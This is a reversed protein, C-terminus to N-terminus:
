LYRALEEMPKRKKERLTADAAHGVCLVLRIRRDAPLGLAAQLGKEDFWGLMCTGLGLETAALCFQLAAIGIDISTYDQKKIRAGFRATLNPKEESIIVFCPCNEAFANGQTVHALVKQVAQPTHAVVFAYPQSNCASPAQRAAELCADLMEKAVPLPAYHRCSERRRILDFYASM